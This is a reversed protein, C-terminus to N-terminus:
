FIPPFPSSLLHGLNLDLETNSLIHFFIKPHPKDVGPTKTLELTM